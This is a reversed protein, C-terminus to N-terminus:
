SLAVDEISILSQRGKQGKRGKWGKRGKRGKLGWFIFFRNYYFPFTIEVELKLGNYEPVEM